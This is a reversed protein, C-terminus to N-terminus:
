PMLEAADVLDALIGAATVDPGAGPGQVVLPTEHYRASRILIINDTGHLSDFPSGTEVARVGVSLYGDEILGVFFLRKGEHAAADIREQWDEDVAGLGEMFAEVSAEALHFPVLSEVSADEREVELGIERALILLKRAM